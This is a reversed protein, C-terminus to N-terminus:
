SCRISALGWCLAGPANIGLFKAVETFLMVDRLYLIRSSYKYQGSAIGWKEGDCEFDERRSKVFVFWLRPPCSLKWRTLPFVRPFNVWNKKKWLLPFSDTQPSSSQLIIEKLLLVNEVNPYRKPVKSCKTNGSTSQSRPDICQKSTYVHNNPLGNSRSVNNQCGVHICIWTYM